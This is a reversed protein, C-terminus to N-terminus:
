SHTNPLFGCFGNQARIAPFPCTEKVFTSVGSYGGRKQCMSHFCYYNNVIAIDSTLHQRTIKTEQMCFIDCDFSDILAQLREDKGKHCWPHYYLVSRLGNVNWSVIKM